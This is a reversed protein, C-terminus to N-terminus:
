EDEDEDCADDEGWRRMREKVVAKAAKYALFVEESNDDQSGAGSQPSYLKRMGQMVYQMVLASALNADTMPVITRWDEGETCLWQRMAIKRRSEEAKKLLAVSEAGLQGARGFSKYMEREREVEANIREIRKSVDVDASLADYVSEHMLMFSLHCWANGREYLAVNDEDFFGDPGVVQENSHVSTSWQVVGREISKLLSSPTEANFDSLDCDRGYFRFKPGAHIDGQFAACFADADPSADLEAAGYDDYVGRMPVHFPQWEAQRACYGGGPEGPRGSKVLLMVVVRDDSFISLNTLACTGNWSGM